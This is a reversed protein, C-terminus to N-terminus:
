SEPQDGMVKELYAANYEEALTAKREKARQKVKAVQEPTLVEGKKIIFGMKVLANRDRQVAQKSRTWGGKSGFREAANEATNIALLRKEAKKQSDAFEIVRENEKRFKAYEPSDKGYELITAKARAVVKRAENIRDYFAGTQEDKASAAGFPLGAFRRVIPIDNPGVDEGKALKGALSLTRMFTRGMGGVTESTVHKISEPSVDLPTFGPEVKSGGGLANMGEAVTKWFQHTNDFALQSDPKEQEKRFAQPPMIPKGWNNENRYINVIPDLVTPSVINWFSQGTIPSFANIFGMAVDASAELLSLETGDKNKKGRWLESMKRGTTIFANLGYGAPIKLDFGFSEPLMLIFNAHKDEETYQDWDDDDLMSNLFDELMGTLVLGTLVMPNTAVTKMFRAGGIISANAFGYAANVKPGWEGHQQFNTTLERVAEAAQKAPVGGDRLAKYAALRTMNEFGSNVHDIFSFTAKAWKIPNANSRGANKMEAKAERIADELPTIQGYNLKGGNAEFEAYTQFWPNTSTAGAGAKNMSGMLSAMLPKLSAINKIMARRLGKTNLTSANLVGTQIDKTANALIFDVNWQTNSKSWLRTFVSMLQLGRNLEQVGLNKAAKVFRMASPNRDNFTMKHITDGDKVFITRQQELPDNMRTQMQYEVQGKAKNWVPVRKVRDISVFNPDPVARFMNLMVTDVKNRYSRDIAEQAQTITYGVIEELNARSERGYMRHGEGGAVSFGGGKRSSIPFTMEMEPEINENGRLPVYHDQPQFGADLADQTLLGSQLREQQAMEIMRDIYVAVAALDADKGEAVFQAMINAADVNTMGSGPKDPARFEPNIAAIRANRAPAHRAYLYLGLDDMSVGRAQMEEAMPRIMNDTLHQLKYGREDATINEMVNQEPPLRDLGQEAAVRQQTKIVQQYRQTVKRRFADIFSDAADWDGKGHASGLMTLFSMTQDHIRRFIGPNPKTPDSLPGAQPARVVRDRYGRGTVTKARIEVVGDDFIVFNRTAENEPQGRSDRDLYRSGVVGKDRLYLSVAKPAEGNEVATEMADGTIPLADQYVAVKLVNQLEQGTLDWFDMETYDEINVEAEIAELAKTIKPSQNSLPADLDLLDENEPVEVKYLAGKTAGTDLEVKKMRLNDFIMEVKQAENALAEIEAADENAEADAM